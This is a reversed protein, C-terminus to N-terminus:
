TDILWDHPELNSFFKKDVYRWRPHKWGLKDLDPIICLSERLIYFSLSLILHQFILTTKRDQKKTCKIKFCKRQSIFTFTNFYSWEISNSCRNLSWHILGQSMLDYRIGVLIQIPWDRTIKSPWRIMAVISM